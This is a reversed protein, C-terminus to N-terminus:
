QVGLVRLIEDGLLEAIEDAKKQTEIWKTNRLFEIVIRALVLKTVASKVAKDPAYAKGEAVLQLNKIAEDVLKRLVGTAQESDIAELMYKPVQMKLIVTTRSVRGQVMVRHLAELVAEGKM